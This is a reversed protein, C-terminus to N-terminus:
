GRFLRQLSISVGFLCAAVCVIAPGTPLDLLYSLYLGGLVAICGIIAAGVAMREPTHALPRAAAAPLVLMSSILLVGVVKIAVAVVVALVLSLVAHEKRHDVGGSWALDPNLTAMLLPSWRWTMLGLVVAAGAWITALDSRNVALIDGFLFANLDLRVDGLVSVAVLGFALAGHAMVGLLTDVAFGRGGLLFVAGAMMVAALLVAPTVAIGLALALAVGLIAAHASAEGFYAMRRWVVFCGLPASALAVGM